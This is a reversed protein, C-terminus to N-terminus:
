LSCCDTVYSFFSTWDARVVVLNFINIAISPKQDNANAQQGLSALLAVLQQHTLIMM